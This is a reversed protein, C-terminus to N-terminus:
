VAVEVLKAPDFQQKSEMVELWGQIAEKINDIAEEYTKGQSLCGPLAPVEAVYYGAEDKEIVVHLKM